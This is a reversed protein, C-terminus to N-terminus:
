VTLNGTRHELLTGEALNVLGALQLVEEFGLLEGRLAILLSLCGQYLLVVLQAVAVGGDQFVGYPRNVVFVDADIHFQFLALAVVQAVDGPHTVGNDSGVIQVSGQAHLFAVYVVLFQQFLAQRFVFIGHTVIVPVVTVQEVLQFRGLDVDDTVGDVQLHTDLFACLCVDAM